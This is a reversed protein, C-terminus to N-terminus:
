EVRHTLLSDSIDIEDLFKDLRWGSTFPVIQTIRDESNNIVIEVYFDQFSYLSFSFADLRAKMLFIGKERLLDAREHLDLILFHYM